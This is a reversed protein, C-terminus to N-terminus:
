NSATWLAILKEICDPIKRNRSYEKMEERRGSGLDDIQEIVRDMIELANRELEDKPMSSLGGKDVSLVISIYKSQFAVSLIIIIMQELTLNTNLQLVVEDYPVSYIKINDSLDAGSATVSAYFWKRRKQNKLEDILHLVSDIPMPYVISGINKVNPISKIFQSMDRNSLGSLDIHLEVLQTYCKTFNQVDCKINWKLQPMNLSKLKPLSNLMIPLADPITTSTAEYLQLHELSTCQILHQLLLEDIKFSEEEADYTIDIDVMTTLVEQPLCYFLSVSGYFRKISQIHNFYPRWSEPDYIDACVSNITLDKLNYNKTSKLILQLIYSDEVANLNLISLNPLEIEVEPLVEEVSAAINNLVLSTLPSKSCARLFNIVNETYTSSLRLEKMNPFKVDNPLKTHMYLSLKVLKFQSAKILSYALSPRCSCRLHEIQLDKSWEIPNANEGALFGYSSIYELSKLHQVYPLKIIRFLLNDTILSHNSGEAIRLFKLKLESFVRFLFDECFSWNSLSLKTLKKRQLIIDAMTHSTSRPPVILNLVELNPAADILTCAFQLSKSKIKLKRLNSLHIDKLFNCNKEMNEPVEELRLDRIQMSPGCLIIKIWQEGYAHLKTVQNRIIFDLANPDVEKGVYLIRSNWLLSNNTTLHHFRHSVLSIRRLLKYVNIFSLIQSLVEDPLNDIILLAM